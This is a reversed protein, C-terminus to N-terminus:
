PDLELLEALTLKFADCLKLLTGIKPNTQGYELKQITKWSLGHSELEDQNLGHEERLARVRLAFLRQFERLRVHRSDDRGRASTYV